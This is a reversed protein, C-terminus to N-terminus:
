DHESHIDSSSIVNYRCFFFCGSADYEIRLTNRGSVESLASGLGRSGGDNAMAVVEDNARCQRELDNRVSEAQTAYLGVLQAQALSDRLKFGTIGDGDQRMAKQLLIDHFVVDVDNM